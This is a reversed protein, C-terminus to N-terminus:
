RGLPTNTATPTITPTQTITPTRTPTGTRTPWPTRTPLPTRTPTRTPTLTITPTPTLTPSAVPTPTVLMEPPYLELVASRWDLGHPAAFESFRTAPYFSRWSARAPQREWGYASALATFDVWYGTPPDAVRLGGQEYGRTDGSFRASFDWTQQALPAGQSGDQLRTRLYVRWYTAEGYDERAVVIWGANLPATNITFARGTVLWDGELEPMAPSTLPLYANELASLFDWGLQRAVELRLASFAEDVADSLVPYPASLDPLEVIQRRGGPLAEGGASASQWLPTPTIQAASAFAQLSAQTFGIRGWALGHLPGELPAPPLFLDNNDVRYASLFTRNPLSIRVAMQLGSPSWAPWDGVGLYAGPAEPRASDWLYVGRVGNGEAGWALRSGDPSWVPHNELSGANQSLNRYRDEVRDLDALWVENEGSRTSVFAIQRGQPSWAPSFDAGHYDTLRIPPQEGSIPAVLIDLSDELYSEYALWLSDPSWSPSGDYAPTDTIRRIQGDGLDLLYIDWQGGRNSAFALRTQDPSLAPAADHWPGDTLRTFDLASPHYAFLHAYPGDQISLLFLGEEVQLPQPDLLGPPLTASPSATEAPGASVPLPQPQNAPRAPLRLWAQVTPGVLWAAILATVLVLSLLILRRYRRPSPEM